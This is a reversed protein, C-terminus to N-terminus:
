EQDARRDGRRGAQEARGAGRLSKDQLGASLFVALAVLTIVFTVSTFGLAVWKVAPEAQKPLVLVVVLGILPVLWLSTLLFNDSM